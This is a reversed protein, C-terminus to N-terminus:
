RASGGTSNNSVRVPTDDVLSDSPDAIVADTPQLGSAIEVSNGYDHNLKVSILRAKGDRVIAVQLGEKRFILTDAPITVSHTASLLNLHVFVYSGPLLRGTSNDIDVEVLLTRSAQNIANTNRVITGRFTEGPFEDLTLTASGGSRADPSYVEPVAVYVRLTHTAVMHFLERPETSAGGSVGSAASSGGAGADILAGIDTNRATIIGDFPASVKEFSQLQDLRRVNAANSEVTARMAKLNINAQDTEQQSVSGDSVLGQWRDATIKAIAVNAQATDLDARAQQLQQDLEPTDIVALLQDKKVHAGIDFYWHLLYGNTRAYIPADIFAQTVGPLVIEDTPPGEKPFVVAVIPIAAEETRQKLRSEATARSHIGAYIVAVVALAIAAFLLASRRRRPGPALRHTPSDPIRREITELEPVSTVNEENPTMRKEKERKPPFLSM